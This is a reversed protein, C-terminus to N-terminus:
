EELLKARVKHMHTEGTRVWDGGNHRIWIMAPGCTHWGSTITPHTYNTQCIEVDDASWLGPLYTVDRFSRDYRHITM